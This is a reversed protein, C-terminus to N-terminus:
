APWWPQSTTLVKRIDEKVADLDLTAFEKAYNYDPGYPNAATAENQRLATLDVTKPWWEKAAAQEGAAMTAPEAQATGALALTSGAALLAALAIKRFTM